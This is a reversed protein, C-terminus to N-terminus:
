VCGIEFIGDTVLCGLSKQKSRLKFAFAVRQPRLKHFEHVRHWVDCEKGNCMIWARYVCM